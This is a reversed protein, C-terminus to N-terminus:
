VFRNGDRARDRLARKGGELGAVAFPM